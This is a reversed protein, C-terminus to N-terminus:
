KQKLNNYIKIAMNLKITRTTPMYRGAHNWRTPKKIFSAHSTIARTVANSRIFLRALSPDQLHTSKEREGCAALRTRGFQQNIGLDAARDRPHCGHAPGSGQEQDKQNTPSPRQREVPIRDWALCNSIVTLSSPTPTAHLNQSSTLSGTIFPHPQTGYGEEKSFM